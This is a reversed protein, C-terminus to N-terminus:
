RWGSAHLTGAPAYWGQRKELSAPPRMTAPWPWAKMRPGTAAVSTCHWGNKRCDAVAQNILSEAFALEEAAERKEGLAGCMFTRNNSSGSFVVETLVPEDLQVLSVGAALLCHLEERLVRVVDTALEERTDYARDSICEM